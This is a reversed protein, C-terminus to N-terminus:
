PLQRLYEILLVLLIFLAIYFFIRARKRQAPAYSYVQRGDPLTKKHTAIIHSSIVGNINPVPMPGVGDPPIEPQELEELRKEKLLEATEETIPNGRDALLKKAFVYDFHGWEDPKAVIEVLEADTFSYLYYDPDVDKLQAAYFEEMVGNARTFDAPALQLEVFYGATNQILLRDFPAEGKIVRSEIDHKKLEAAIASAFEPDNFRQFTLFAPHSM